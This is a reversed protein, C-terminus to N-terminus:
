PYMYTNIQSHIINHWKLCFCKFQMVQLLQALKLQFHGINNVHPVHSM